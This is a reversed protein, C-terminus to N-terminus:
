VYHRSVYNPCIVKYLTFLAIYDDNVLHTHVQPALIDCYNDLLARYFGELFSRSLHAGSLLWSVFRLRRFAALISVFRRAM